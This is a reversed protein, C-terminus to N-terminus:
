SSIADTLAAALEPVSTADIADAPATVAEISGPPLPTMVVTGQAGQNSFPFRAQALRGSGDVWVTVKVDGVWNYTAVIRALDGSADNRVASADVTLQYRKTPLGNVTDDAGDGNSTSFKAILQMPVIPDPVSIGVLKSVDVRPRMDISSATHVVYWDANATSQIFLDGGLWITRVTRTEVGASKAELV